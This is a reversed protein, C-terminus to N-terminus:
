SNPRRASPYNGPRGMKVDNYADIAKLIGDRLTKDNSDAITLDIM